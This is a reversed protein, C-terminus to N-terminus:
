ETTTQLIRFRYELLFARRNNERREARARLFRHNIVELGAQLSPMAAIRQEIADILAADGAPEDGRTQLELACRVERGSRDKTSWDVSASAALGLWPVSASLPSEEEITNLAALAPDDALWEVLAARFRTEM